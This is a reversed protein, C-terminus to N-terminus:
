FLSHVRRGIAHLAVEGEEDPLNVICSVIYHKAGDEVIGCDGMWGVRKGEQEFSYWGTKHAFSAEAPLGQRIKTKDLQRSLLAKLHASMPLRGMEILYLLEAFHLTTQMTGPAEKYAEDEFKRPLFKRTVENGAWGRELLFANIRERTVWDILENAATNSSGTLAYDALYGLSVATGPQLLSRPDNPLEPKKDVANHEKITVFREMKLRGAEVEHLFAAVVDLKYISAAYVPTESQFGAFVPIGSSLDVVSLYLAGLSPFTALVRNLDEQFGADRRFNLTM